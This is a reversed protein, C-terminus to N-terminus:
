KKVWPRKLFLVLPVVVCSAIFGLGLIVALGIMVVIWISEWDGHRRQLGKLVYINDITINEESAEEYSAITFTNTASGYMFQAAKHGNITYDVLLSCHYEDDLYLGTTKYTYEYCILDYNVSYSTSSVYTLSKYTSPEVEVRYGYANRGSNVTLDSLEYQNDAFGRLTMKTKPPVLCGSNPTEIYFNSNYNSTSFYVSNLSLYLDGKNEVDISFPYQSYDNPNDYVLNSFEFNEIDYPEDNYYPYPSNAMFLLPTFLLVPILAKKKM